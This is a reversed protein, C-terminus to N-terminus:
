SRVNNDKIYKLLSRELEKISIPKGVFDNMGADICAEYDEPLADATLAIIWPQTQASSSQRILRTATLGDMVPMQVDMFILDYARSSEQEAIVAVCESGNNVVDAQCGLKQLMLVIIKQNLMNDEVILIKIPFQEFSIKNAKSLASGLKDVSEVTSNAAIIPLSLTFHFITGQTNENSKIVWDSAPNGGVAGRSEVWITGGMIEVLRKSIALGLGTGGFQRSISADAQTFPKFLKHIHESEIGIGTDAIAFKFEYKFEYTNATILKHNYSISIHGQETFKIANGVLNLLIQRLRSSDGIVKNPNISNVHCQLNINKDAAQKNLLNCVGNITEEFNFEKQELHLNGSEIKSFDLIDNIVTLLADGSDLIIKVFDNQDDNLPTAALLQAMGLVGNMPTRIEHSMNALFASKARNAAEALEKAKELSQEALKRQTIDRCICFQLVDNDWEVSNASIEINCISGDKKLHKTEFLVKRQLKFDQIERDLDGRTWRVDIDHISLNTIEELSYGLMTAFSANCEVLNGASDLIMIGDFSNTLLAKNRILEKELTIEIQKHDSIDSVVGYWATDGNARREPRLNARLWKIGSPTIIRWENQLMSLTEFSMGVAEWFNAIDDSHIQEFCLEPNQMVQAVKLAHIEEYAPSLYEYYASGNARQVFIEIIVPSSLAIKQIREENSRLSEEARRRDSNDRIIVVAVDALMPLVRVEEYHLDDDVQYIQEITQTAGTSIARQVAQIQNTAIESPLLEAINKGVPDIHQPILPDFANQRNYRLYVGDVRILCVIDPIANVISSLKHKSAIADVTCEQVQEELSSNLDQLNQYAQAQQIAIAVQVSLQQLLKIEHEEWDRTASCQHVILLGWLTQNNPQNNPQNNSALSNSLPAALLIPVVVNSQVQFSELMQAHCESFGANHIDSNVFIKADLYEKVQEESLHICRNDAEVDLCSLFPPVVEEAVIKRSRDEYFKYVLTRDTQLFGSIERVVTQCIDELNLFGRINLAIQSVLEERRRSMELQNTLALYELLGHISQQLSYKTLDSKILYDYAGLRMASVASRANEDGTFMIVPLKLDLAQESSKSRMHDRITEVLHLGNGEAFSIDILTVDPNQSRWLELGQNLDEAELIRYSHDPDSELYRRCLVRDAEFDDVILITKAKYM